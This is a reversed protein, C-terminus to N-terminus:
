RWRGSGRAADTPPQRLMSCRVTLPLPRLVARRLARRVTRVATWGHRRTATRSGHIASADLRRDLLYVSATALGVVAAERLTFSAGAADALAWSWAIAVAPADLALVSPWAWWPLRPRGSRTV